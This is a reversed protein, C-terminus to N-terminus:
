SGPLTLAYSADVRCIKDFIESNTKALAPKEAPAAKAILTQYCSHLAAWAALAIDPEWEALGHQEIVSDLGELITRAIAPRKGKVCLEALYLQRLFRDKASRDNEGGKRMAAIAAQLDGKGLLALAEAKTAELDSGGEVEPEASAQADDGVSLIPEVDAVLWDACLPSVFPTGDSFTLQKLEPIRRFLIATEELVATMAQEYDSGLQSMGAAILRQLDIWFHFGGEQFSAEAEQVLKATEGKELLGNLFTRRQEIPAPIKTKGNENPPTVAVVSWRMARLVRYPVPNTAKDSRLFACAKAV